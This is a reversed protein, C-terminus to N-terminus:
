VSIRTAYVTDCVTYRICHIAGRKSVPFALKMTKPKVLGSENVRVIVGSALVGVMAGGIRNKYINAIFAIILIKAVELM